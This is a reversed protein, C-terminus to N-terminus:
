HDSARAAENEAHWGDRKDWGLRKVTEINISGDANLTGHEIPRASPSGTGATTKAIETFSAFPRFGDMGFAYFGM